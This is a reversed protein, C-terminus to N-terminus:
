QYFFVVDNADGCPNKVTGTVMLAGWGQALTPGGRNQCARKAKEQVNWKSESRPYSTPNPPVLEAVPLSSSLTAVWKALTSTSEKYLKQVKEVDARKVEVPSDGGRGSIEKGLAVIQGDFQRELDRLPDSIDPPAALGIIRM